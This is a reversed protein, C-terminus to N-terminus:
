TVQTCAELLGLDESEKIYAEVVAKCLLNLLPKLCVDLDWFCIREDKYGTDPLCFRRFIM